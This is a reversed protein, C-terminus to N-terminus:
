FDIALPRYWWPQYSLAIMPRAEATANTTGRHWMRLDRMLLAGKPAPMRVPPAEARRATLWEEPVLLSTWGLEAGQRWYDREFGDDSQALERVKVIPCESELFKQTTDRFFEQDDTLRIEM